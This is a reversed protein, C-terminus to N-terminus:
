LVQHSSPMLSCKFCLPRGCTFGDRGCRKKTGGPTVIDASNSLKPRSAKAMVEKQSLPTLADLLPTSCRERESRAPTVLIVVSSRKLSPTQPQPELAPGKQTQSILDMPLSNREIKRSTPRTSTATVSPSSGAHGTVSSVADLHISRNSNTKTNGNSAISSQNRELANDHRLPETASLSPTAVDAIENISGGSSTTTNTRPNNPTSPPHQDSEATSNLVEQIQDKCLSTVTPM